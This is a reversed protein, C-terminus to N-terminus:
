IYPFIRLAQVNFSFDFLNCSPGHILSAVPKEFVVYLALYLLFANELFEIFLMIFLVCRSLEGTLM